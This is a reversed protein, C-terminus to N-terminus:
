RRLITLHFPHHAQRTSDTYSLSSPQFGTAGLHDAFSGFYHDFSRNEQCLIVVHKIKNASPWRARDAARRAAAGLWSPRLTAAGALVAARPLLARRTLVHRRLMGELDHWGPHIQGQEAM